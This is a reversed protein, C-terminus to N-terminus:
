LAEMLFEIIAGDHYIQETQGDVNEVLSFLRQLQGHVLRWNAGCDLTNTRSQGTDDFIEIIRAQGRASQDADNSVVRFTMVFRIGRTPTNPEKVGSTFQYVLYPFATGARAQSRRVRTGWIESTALAEARIAEELARQPSTAM